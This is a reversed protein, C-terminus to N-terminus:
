LRQPNDRQGNPQTSRLMSKGPYYIGNDEVIIFNDIEGTGSITLTGDGSLTWTLNNGCTGSDITAAETDHNSAEAAIKETSAVPEIEATPETNECEECVYACPQEETAEAYGCAEDHVHTCSLTHSVCTSEETCEHPCQNEEPVESYGCDAHIHVCRTTTIYCDNTHEHTCDSGAAPRDTIAGAM